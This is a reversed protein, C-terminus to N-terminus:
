VWLIKREVEQRGGVRALYVGGDVYVVSGQRGFVERGDEVM